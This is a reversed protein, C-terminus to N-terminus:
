ETPQPEGAALIALQQAVNRAMEQFPGRLRSDEMTAAPSGQDAADALGAVLPLQALLPLGYRDALKRGGGKGFLYYHHDPMEIPAFYSMNEIVGIVPIDIQPQRYMEISRMTDALSVQQPTTVMVVASLPFQQALTLHIDGTGPPLDVILYDLAGWEVDLLLQKLASSVMPGRWVIPQTEDIMSGMSLLKIGYKEFPIMTLDDGQGRVEPQQNQLHFMTPLSPGHIDADLLGTAAGERGLAIALNSAVTSKGVGGKGSGVGVLHKINRLQESHQTRQSTVMSDFDIVVEAQPYARHIAQECDNRLQEKLPCAPTTLVLTFCVQGDEVQLDRIMNLSVLDRKLDPDIVTGLAKWITNVEM